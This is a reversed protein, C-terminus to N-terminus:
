CRDRIPLYPRSWGVWQCAVIVAVAAPIIPHKIVKATNVMRQQWYALPECRRQVSKGSIGFSVFCGQDPRVAAFSRPDGLGLDVGAMRDPHFEVLVKQSSEAELAAPLLIRAETERL